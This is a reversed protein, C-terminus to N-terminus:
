YKPGNLNVLPLINVCVLVVGGGGAGETVQIIFLLLLIVEWVSKRSSGSHQQIVNCQIPTGLSAALSHRVM